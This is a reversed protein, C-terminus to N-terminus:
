KQKSKQEFWKWLTASDLGVLEEYIDDSDSSDDSLQSLVKTMIPKKANANQMSVKTVKTSLSSLSSLSSQLNPSQLAGGRRINMSM